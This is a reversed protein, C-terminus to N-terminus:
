KARYVTNGDVITSEVMVKFNGPSGIINLVCLDAKAGDAISGCGEKDLGTLACPNTSLIKAVAVLADEFGFANHLRNWIGQMDTTLWNLLNCFGRDMTLNSSFLTNAQDVVQFFKGDESVAGRIGGSTFQKVQSGAAFLCDTIGVIRDVGKRKLIDRVYAPNVHYGDLIQEAYLENSKLVAEIAGGGHFPKYSGGTPGNTLHIFYKLGARTAEEIQECTANSHGAGVIINKNTLYEILEYSPRDFDPVVNALKITGNDEIRDFSDTCFELVNDPNQAGAMKPNLFSGELLGGLIKAGPQTKANSLYRYLQAYCNKLNEIPSAWTGVYFGTVGFRILTKSLMELGYDYASPSNDFTESKIDYLGTTFEFLNYGHFHIDVFGPVVYKGTIDVVQDCAEKDAALKVRGNRLVIDTREVGQDTVVFGGKLQVTKM